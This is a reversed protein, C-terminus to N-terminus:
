SWSNKSGDSTVTMRGILLEHPETWSLFNYTWHHTNFVRHQRKPNHWETQINPIPISLILLIELTPHHYCFSCPFVTGLLTTKLPFILLMYHKNSKAFPPFSSPHPHLGNNWPSPVRLRMAWLLHQQFLWKQLCSKQTSSRGGSSM